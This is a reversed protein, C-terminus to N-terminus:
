AGSRRADGVAKGDASIVVDDDAPTEVVGVKFPIALVVTMPGVREDPIDGSIIEVVENDEDVVSSSIFDM